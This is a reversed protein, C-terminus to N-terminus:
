NTGTTSQGTTLHFVSALGTFFLNIVVSWDAPVQGSIASYGNFAFIFVLTWFTKSRFLSYSMPHPSAGVKPQFLSALYAIFTKLRSLIDLKEATPLPASPIANVVAQAQTILAQVQAPPIDIATGAEIIFQSTIFQKSIEKLPIANDSSDVIKIGTPSFGYATIFHGYKASTFTPTATGWWADDCKILLLVAKNQYIHQCLSAFDTNGFAYSNIKQNAADADLAATTATKDSYTALPLAVDNELPEFDNAGDNTLSKFISRM